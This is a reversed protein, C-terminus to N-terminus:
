RPVRRLAAALALARSPEERAWLVLDAALQSASASRLHAPDAGLKTALALLEALSRQRAAAHLLAPSPPSPPSPPTPTTPGAGLFGFSKIVGPVVPEPAPGVPSAPVAGLGAELEDAVADPGRQGDLGQLQYLGYPVDTSRKPLGELYVPFVRHQEHRLLDIARLVEDQFFWADDAHQSVLAVTARSDAQAQVIAQPWRVGGTLTESDLFCPEPQLADYLQKAWPKDPSAHAIFFSFRAPM